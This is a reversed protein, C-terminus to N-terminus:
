SFPISKLGPKALQIPICCHQVRGILSLSAVIISHCSVKKLPNRLEIESGLSGRSM